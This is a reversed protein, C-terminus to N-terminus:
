DGQGVSPSDCFCGYRESYAGCYPCTKFENEPAMTELLTWAYRQDKDTKNFWYTITHKTQKVKV